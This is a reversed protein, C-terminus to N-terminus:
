GVKVINAFINSNLFLVFVIFSVNKMYDNTCM